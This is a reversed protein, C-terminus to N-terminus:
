PGHKMRVTVPSSDLNSCGKGHRAKNPSIEGEDKNESGFVKEM